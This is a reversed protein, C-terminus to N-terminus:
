DQIIKQLYTTKSGQILVVGSQGGHGDPTLVPTRFTWIQDTAPNFTALQAELKERTRALQRELLDRDTLLQERRAKSVDQSLRLDLAAIDAEVQGLIRRRAEDPSLREQLSASIAGRDISENRPTACGLFCVGTLLLFLAKTM